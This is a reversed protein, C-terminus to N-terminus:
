DFLNELVRRAAKSDNEELFVRLDEQSQEEIENMTERTLKKAFELVKGANETALAVDLQQQLTGCIVDEQPRKLGNSADQAMAAYIAGSDPRVSASVRAGSSGGFDHTFYPGKTKTSKHEPKPLEAKKSKFLNDVRKSAANYLKKIRTCYMAVAGAAFGTIVAFVGLKLAREDRLAVKIPIKGAEMDQTMDTLMKSIKLEITNFELEKKKIAQPLKLSESDSNGEKLSKLVAKILRLIEACEQEFESNLTTIELSNALKVAFTYKGKLGAYYKQMSNFGEIARATGQATEAYSVPVLLFISLMSISIFLKM